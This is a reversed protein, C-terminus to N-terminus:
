HNELDDQFNNSQRTYEFISFDNILSVSFFSNIEISITRDNTAHFFFFFSPIIYFNREEYIM